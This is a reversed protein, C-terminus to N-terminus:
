QGIKYKYDLYAYEEQLAKSGEPKKLLEDALYKEYDLSKM